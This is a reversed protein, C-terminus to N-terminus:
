AIGGHVPCSIDRVTWARGEADYFTKGGTNLGCSCVPGRKMAEEREHRRQEIGDNMDQFRDSTEAYGNRKAM